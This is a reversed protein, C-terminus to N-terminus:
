FFSPRAMLCIVIVGLFRRFLNVGFFIELIAWIFLFFHAIVVQQLIYFVFTLILPANPKQAIVYGRFM